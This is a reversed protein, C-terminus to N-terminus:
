TFAFFTNVQSCRESNNINFHMMKLCNSIETHTRANIENQSRNKKKKKKEEEGPNVTSSQGPRITGNHPVLTSTCVRTNCRGGLLM